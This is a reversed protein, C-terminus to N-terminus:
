TYFNSIIPIFMVYRVRVTKKSINHIIFSFRVLKMNLSSSFNEMEDGPSAWASLVKIKIVSLTLEPSYFMVKNMRCSFSHKHCARSKNKHASSFTKSSDRWKVTSTPTTLSFTFTLHNRNNGTIKNQLKSFLISFKDLVLFSNSLILVELRM